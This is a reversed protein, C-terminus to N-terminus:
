QKTEGLIEIDLTNRSESIGKLSIDYDISLKQPQTSDVFGIVDNTLLEMGIKGYPTAYVGHYRVGKEFEMVTEEIDDGKRSMKVKGPTIVLETVCGELGSISTEDYSILTTKGDTQFTGTTTFEVRDEDNDSFQKGTIRLLIDRTDL